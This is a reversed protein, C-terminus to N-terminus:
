GKILQKTSIKWGENMKDIRSDIYSRTEDIQRISYDQNQGIRQHIEDSMCSQNQWVRELESQLSNIQKQQKVVRVIGLVITAVFIIAVVSLVGFTFSLTEM